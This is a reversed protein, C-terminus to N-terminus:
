TAQRSEQQVLQEMEPLYQNNKGLHSRMGDNVGRIIARLKHWRGTRHFLGFFFLMKIAYAITRMLARNRRYKKYIHIANRFAYYFRFAEAYCIVKKGLIRKSIKDWTRQEMIKSGPIDFAEYGQEALRMSLELDDGYMFYETLPLGVRRIAEASILTGRWPFCDLRCPVARGHRAGVARVAGLCRNEEQLNMYGQYLKEVSDACMRVDDDLTLVFECDRVARRIGEHFGGATGVNESMKVCTVSPFKQSVMMQTAPSDSNDMVIIEHLRMTQRGLDKLLDELMEPNNYTVIVATLRSVRGFASTSVDFFAQMPQLGSGPIMANQGIMRECTILGIGAFGAKWDEVIEM